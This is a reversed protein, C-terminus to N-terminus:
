LDSTQYHCKVATIVLNQGQLEYQYNIKYTDTNIVQTNPKKETIYEGAVDLPLSFGASEKRLYKAYPNNSHQAYGAQGIDLLVKNPALLGGVVFQLDTAATQCSNLSLASASLVSFLAALKVM